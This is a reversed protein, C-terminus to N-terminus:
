LGLKVKINSRNIGFRYLDKEHWPWYMLSTIHWFSPFHPASVTFPKFDLYSRQGKTGFDVSTKRLDLEVYIHLLISFTGLPIRPSFDLLSMTLELFKTEVFYWWPIDFPLPTITWFGSKWLRVSLCDSLCVSLCGRHFWSVEVVKNTPTYSPQGLLEYVGATKM